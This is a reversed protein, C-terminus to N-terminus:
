AGTARRPTDNTDEPDEPEELSEAMESFFISEPRGPNQLIFLREKARTIAVYLIRREEEISSKAHPFVRGTIGPIFVVPFELGKAKHISMLQVSDSSDEKKQYAEIAEDVHSLFRAVTGCSKATELLSSVALNMEDVTRGGTKAKHRLFEKYQIQTMLRTLVDYATREMRLDDLVNMIEQIKAEDQGKRGPASRAIELAEDVTGATKLANTLIDGKMFRNPKNWIYTIASLDEKQFAARAYSVLVKVETLGFFGESNSQVTYPIGESLLAGEIEGSVANVRYVVAMDSYKYGQRALEKIHRAITTGEAYTKIWDVQGTIDPRAYKLVTDPRDEDHSMLENALDLIPEASRFNEEMKITVGGWKKSFQTLHRPDGGRFEFIAQNSDGVGMLEATGCASEEAPEACACMFELMSVQALSLDQYEDVLVYRYRQGLKTACNNRNKRMCALFEIMIDSHERKGSVRQERAYARYAKGKAEDVVGAPSCNLRIPDVGLGSLEAAADQVFEPTCRRGLTASAKQAWMEPMWGFKGKALGEAKLDSSALVYLVYHWAMADFTRAEIDQACLGSVKEAMQQAANKTFTLLLIQKHDVGDLVLRAARNTMSTTKGSGAVCLLAANEGRHLIAKKQSRTYKFKKM